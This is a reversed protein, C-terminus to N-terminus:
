QQYHQRFLHTKLSRKFSPTSDINRIQVPLSNWMMPAAYSFAREGFKRTRVKPVSLMRTDASSRLQRSPSYVSLLDSIYVPSAHSFFNHCLVSLKYQIRAEVPLWHLTHLLPTIHDRKRSCIILRAASNQVKRLKDLLNKPCNALLANGYDLRSLVFASVLTKTVDVTLYHRISSIQRLAAYASRCTLSIHCDLSMDDSIMFGLNRATTSFSVDSNGVRISSLKTHVAFSKSSHILLAETKDDNLKLKHKTM